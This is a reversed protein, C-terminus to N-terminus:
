EIHKFNEKIYNLIKEDNLDDNWDVVIFNYIHKYLEYFEEYGKHLKELYEISVNEGTRNRKKIREYCIKPDVKLYIIVDPIQSFKEFTNYLNHYMEFDREDVRGDSKLEKMFIKDEMPSRDQVSGKKSKKITQIQKFRETFLHINMKYSLETMKEISSYFDKLYPNKDTPEHYVDYALYKALINAFTTKGSGILGFLAIHQRKEEKKFVVIYFIIVLIFIVFM